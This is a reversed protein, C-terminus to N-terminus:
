EAVVASDAVVAASDVTAASDVVVEEQVSVSDIMVSDSTSANGGTKSSCAAFSMAFAVAFFLVLKKM